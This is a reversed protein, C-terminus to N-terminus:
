RRTAGPVDKPDDAEIEAYRRPATWAGYGITFIVLYGWIIGATQYAWGSVAADLARAIHTVVALLQFASSFLPWYRRSRLAIAVFAGLLVVDIIMVSWQTDRTGARFTVLTLAWAALYTAAAFREM